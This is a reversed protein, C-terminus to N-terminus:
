QVMLACDVVEQWRRGPLGLTVTTERSDIAHYQSYRLPTRVTKIFDRFTTKELEPKEGTVRRIAFYGLEYPSCLTTSAIHFIGKKKMRVITRVGQHIDDFLTLPFLQDNFLPYLNGQRYRLIIKQLYDNKLSQRHVGVPHSLRIVAGDTIFKEAEKKAVAYWSL